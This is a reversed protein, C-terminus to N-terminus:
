WKLKYKDNDKLLKPANNQRRPEDLHLTGEKYDGIFKYINGRSQSVLKQLTLQTILRSKVSSGDEYKNIIEFFERKTYQKGDAPPTLQSM